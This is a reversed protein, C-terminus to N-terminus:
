LLFFGFGWLVYAISATGGHDTVCLGYGSRIANTDQTGRPLLQKSAKMVYEGMAQKGMTQSECGM